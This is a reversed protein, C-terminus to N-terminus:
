DRKTRCDVLRRVRPDGRLAALKPDVDIAYLWASNESFARDLEALAGALQAAPEALPVALVDAAVTAPPGAEVAIEM